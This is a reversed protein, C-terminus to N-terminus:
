NKAAAKERRRQAWYKKMRASAAKRSADSLTRKKEQTVQSDQQRSTARPTGSSPGRLRGASRRDSSGCGGWEVAAGARADLSHLEELGVGGGSNTLQIHRTTAHGFQVTGRATRENQSSGSIAHNELAGIRVPRWRSGQKSSLCEVRHTSLANEILSSRSTSPRYEVADTSYRRQRSICAPKPLVDIREWYRITSAPVGSESALKGITM